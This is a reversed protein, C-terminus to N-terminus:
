VKFLDEDEHFHPNKSKLFSEITKETMKLKRKTLHDYITYSGDIVTVIGLETLGLIPMFDKPELDPNLLSYTNYGNGSAEGNVRVWEGNISTVTFVKDKYQRGANSNGIVVDGVRFPNM